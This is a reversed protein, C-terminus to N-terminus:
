DPVPPRRPVVDLRREIILRKLGKKFTSIKDLELLYDPLENWAQSTRLKFADRSIKLCGPSFVIRKDPSLTLNNRLNEPTGINIIKYMLVLSHFNVLESFYLWGCREMLSRTRTKRSAGLVMRACKNLLIQIKKADRKQLGGWMPLLYLLKSLFLGNALLLRSSVPLHSAIHSLFGLTTRLSKMIPKDGLDLQHSWTADRNLNGGLLRCYDKATIVKLMSDPKIVSLQPPSGALRARKQRVMIEVIETKSLNLSLSNSSLFIKM